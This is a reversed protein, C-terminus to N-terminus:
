IYYVFKFEELIKTILLMLAHQLAILFLAMIYLSESTLRLYKTWGWRSLGKNSVVRVFHLKRLLHLGESNQKNFTIM